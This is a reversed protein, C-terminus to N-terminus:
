NLDRPREPNHQHGTYYFRINLKWRRASFGVPNEAKIVLRLIKKTRKFIKLGILDRLLRYIREFASIGPNEAEMLLLRLHGRKARSCAGASARSKKKKKIVRVGLTSPNVLDILRLYSGAESGSCMETFYNSKCQSSGLLYAPHLQVERPQKQLVRAPM